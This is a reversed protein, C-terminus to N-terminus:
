LSYVNYSKSMNDLCKKAEFVKDKFEEKTTYVNPALVFDAPFPSFRHIIDGLDDLIRKEEDSFNTAGDKTYMKYFRDEFTEENIEGKSYLEFLHFVDKRNYVVEEEPTNFYVNLLNSLKKENEMIDFFYKYTDDQLLNCSSM